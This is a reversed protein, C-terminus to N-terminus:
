PRLSQHGFLSKDAPKHCRAEESVQLLSHRFEFMAFKVAEARNVLLRKQDQALIDVSSTRVPRNCSLELPSPMVLTLVRQFCRQPLHPRRFRETWGRSIIEERAVNTPRTLHHRSSAGRNQRASRALPAMSRDHQWLCRERHLRRLWGTQSLAIGSRVAPSCSISTRVPVLWVVSREWRRRPVATAANPVLSGRKSV